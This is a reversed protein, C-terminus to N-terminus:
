WDHNGPSPWFHNKGDTSGGAGNGGGYNGQYPYIWERYFQGINADITAASGTNYNNDGVTFMDSPRPSWSKIMTAVSSEFSQDSWGYDGIVAVTTTATTGGSGGAAVLATTVTLAAVSIVVFHSIMVCPM